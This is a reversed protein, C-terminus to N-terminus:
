SSMMNEVNAPYPNFTFSKKKKQAIFEQIVSLNLSGSKGVIFHTPIDWDTYRSAVSQVNRPDFGPLTVKGPLPSRNTANSTKM